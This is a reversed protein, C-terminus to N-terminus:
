GHEKLWKLGSHMVSSRDEDQLALLAVATTEVQLRLPAGYALSNGANWGGGM